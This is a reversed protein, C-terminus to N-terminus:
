RAARKWLTVTCVVSAAILLTQVLLVFIDSPAIDRQMLMRLVTAVVGYTLVPVTAAILVSLIKM